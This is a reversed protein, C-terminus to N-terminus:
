KKNLIMNNITIYPLLNSHYVFFNQLNKLVMHYFLAISLINISFSFFVSLTPNSILNQFIIGYFFSDPIGCPPTIVM